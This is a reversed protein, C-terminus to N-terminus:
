ALEIDTHPFDDGKFLLPLGASRACAYAFCDGLNLRAPHGVARGFRRCAVVAERRTESTITMEVAGIEALFGDVVAEAREIMDAAIVAKTPAAFTKKRALGIAAECASLPSFVLRGQAAEMRALLHEADEEDGLVAIIASADLFM